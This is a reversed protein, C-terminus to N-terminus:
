PLLIPFLGVIFILTGFAFLEAGSSREFNPVSMMWRSFGFEKWIVGKKFAYFFHQAAIITLFITLGWRAWTPIIIALMEKGGITV